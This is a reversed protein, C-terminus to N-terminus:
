WLRFGPQRSFDLRVRVSIEDLWLKLSAPWIHGASPVATCVDSTDGVGLAAVADRFSMIRKEPNRSFSGFSPSPPAFSHSRRSAEPPPRTLQCAHTPIGMGKRPIPSAGCLQGFRGGVRGLFGVKERVVHSRTETPRACQTQPPAYQTVSGSYDYRRCGDSHWLSPRVM